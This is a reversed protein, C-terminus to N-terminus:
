LSMRNDAFGIALLKTDPSLVVREDKTELQAYFLQQKTACDWVSVNNDTSRVYLMKCDPSFSM